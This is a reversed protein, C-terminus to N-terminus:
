PLDISPVCVTVERKVRTKTPAKKLGSYNPGILVSIGDETAFDAEVMQVKGKFQRAVLRVRPDQPDDTCRSTGRRCSVPNNQAM